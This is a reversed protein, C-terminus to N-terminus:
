GAEERYDRSSEARLSTAQDPYIPGSLEYTAMTCVYEIMKLEGGKTAPSCAPSLAVVLLSHDPNPPTPFLGLARGM